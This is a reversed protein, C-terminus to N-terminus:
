DLLGSLEERLRRLVRSRSAYVVDISVGLEAAVDRAPRGSVVVEWCAKWTTPQFEKQMLALARQALYQRYDAEEFARLTDPSALGELAPDDPPLPSLQQRRCKEWWKRLTLTRLWGRFSKGRDYEFRPLERVLVALVDQVLDAADAEQLGQRRAWYYLLPTYLEVLRDWDAQRVESAQRLRELLSVPTTNM